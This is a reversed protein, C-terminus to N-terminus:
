ERLPFVATWIFWLDIKGNGDMDYRGEGPVYPGYFPQALLQGERWRCLDAFRIGESVM